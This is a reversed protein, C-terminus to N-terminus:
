VSSLENAEKHTERFEINIPENAEKNYYKYRIINDKIKNNLIELYTTGNNINTSVFYKYIKVIHTM